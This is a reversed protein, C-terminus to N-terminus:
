PIITNFRAEAAERSDTAGRLELLNWVDMWDAIDAERIIFQNM